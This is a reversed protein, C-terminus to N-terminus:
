SFDTYLICILIFFLLGKLKGSMNKRIWVKARSIVRINLMERCSLFELNKQFWWSGILIFVYCCTELASFMGYVWGEFVKFLESRLQLERFSGFSNDCVVHCLKSRGHTAGNMVTNNLNRYNTPRTPSREKGWPPYESPARVLRPRLLTSLFNLARQVYRHGHM